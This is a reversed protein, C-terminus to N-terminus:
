HINLVGKIIGPLAWSHFKLFTSRVDCGAKMLVKNYDSSSSNAIIKIKKDTQDRVYKVLFETNPQFSDLCADMIIVSWEDKHEDFVREFDHVYEVHHVEFGAENLEKICREVYGLDDEVLLIKLGEVNDM